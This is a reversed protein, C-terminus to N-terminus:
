AGRQRAAAVPGLEEPFAVLGQLEHEVILADLVRYGTDILAGANADHAALLGDVRVAVHGVDVVDHGDRTARRAAHGVSRAEMLRGAENRVVQRSRMRYRDVRPGNGDLPFDGEQAQRVLGRARM